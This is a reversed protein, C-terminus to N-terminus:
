AEEQTHTKASRRQKVLLYLIFTSIGIAFVALNSDSWVRMTHGAVKFVQYGMYFIEVKLLHYAEFFFTATPLLMFKVYVSVLASTILGKRYSVFWNNM